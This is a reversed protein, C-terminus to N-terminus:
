IYIYINRSYMYRHGRSHPVPAADVCNLYSVRHVELFTQSGSLSFFGLKVLQGLFGWWKVHTPARHRQSRQGQRRGCSLTKFIQHLEPNPRAATGEGVVPQQMLLFSTSVCTCVKLCPISKSFLSFIKVYFPFPLRMHDDVQRWFMWCMSGEQGLCVFLQVIIQIMFTLNTMWLLRLLFIMM